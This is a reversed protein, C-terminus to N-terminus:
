IWNNTMSSSSIPIHYRFHSYQWKVAKFNLHTIWHGQPTIFIDQNSYGLTTLWLLSVEQYTPRWVSDVRGHSKEEQMELCPTTSTKLSSLVEWIEGGRKMKMWLPRFRWETREINMSQDISWAVAACIVTATMWHRQRGRQGRTKM